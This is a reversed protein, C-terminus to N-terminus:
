CGPGVREREVFFGVEIALEEFHSIPSLGRKWM